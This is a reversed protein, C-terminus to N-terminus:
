VETVPPGCDTPPTDGHVRLIHRERVTLQEAGRRLSVAPGDRDVTIDKMLIRTGHNVGRGLGARIARHGNILDNLRLSGLAKLHALSRATPTV